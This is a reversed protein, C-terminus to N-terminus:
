NKKENKIYINVFSKRARYLLVKVNSSSWGTGDTIELLSLEHLYYLKLILAEKPKMKNLTSEIEEKKESLEIREVADVFTSELEHHSETIEYYSRDGKYKKIHKLSENVVIKYFWSSFKSARKFSRLSKYARVFANQTVDEADHHTKVMSLAISYGMQQYEKIFYRFADKNGELVRELYIHDDDISM